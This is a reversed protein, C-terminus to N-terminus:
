PVSPENSPESQVTKPLSERLRTLAPLYQHFFVSNVEKVVAAVKAFSSPHFTDLEERTLDTFRLLDEVSLGDFNLLDFILDFPRDTVSAPEALWTRVEAVTLEKVTVTRDGLVVSRTITQM